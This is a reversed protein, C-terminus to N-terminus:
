EKLSKDGGFSDLACEHQGAVLVVLADTKLPLVGVFSSIKFRGTSQIRHGSSSSPWDPLFRHPLNLDFVPSGNRISTAPEAWYTVRKGRLFAINRQVGGAMARRTFERYKQVGQSTRHCPVGSHYLRRGIGPRFGVLPVLLLGRCLGNAFVTWRV